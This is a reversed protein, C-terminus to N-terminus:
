ILWPQVIFDAFFIFSEQIVTVMIEYDAEVTYLISGLNRYKNSFNLDVEKQLTYYSTM